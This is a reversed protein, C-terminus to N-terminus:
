LIVAEVLKVGTDDNSELAIAFVDNAHPVAAVATGDNAAVLRQGKRVSGIVKVPVRGKLAVYTGGELESNMKFAPNGSVAGLARDGYKCATVEKEGGVSVVTGVEYEADALYKEALDAYNASTATGHFEVAFLNGNGDRIAVTDGSNGTSAYRAFSGVTISDSQTAIGKFIDAHVIHYPSADSGINYQEGAGGNLLDLGVLKLPTKTSQGVTTQFIVTDGLGAVVPAGSGNVNVRLRKTSLGVSFGYDGFEVDGTFTTPQGSVSVVYNDASIGGLKEANTATGFFRFAGQTIGHGTQTDTGEGETYALTIGPRIKSFGPITNTPSVLMTFETPNASVVFTTVGNVKGEIIPYTFNQTDTALRSVMETQNSGAAQPGILVYKLHTADYAWLQNTATNFWFDGTTLGTPETDSIEAGGTTRFKTGDYFKLKKKDSDFWVQGKIPKAPATSNAFNELLAVFNENQLEGYGAYNKGILKIDLTSDVTGDAVVAVVDGTTKNITYPM